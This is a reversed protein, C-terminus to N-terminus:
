RQSSRCREFAPLPRRRRTARERTGLASWESPAPKSILRGAGCRKSRASGSGALGALALPVRDPTTLAHLLRAMGDPTEVHQRPKSGSPLQLGHTPDILEDHRALLYRYLACLPTVMNRATQGSHMAHVDDILRQVASRKLDFISTDGFAPLFHDRAVARYGRITAPAYTDGSRTWADGSEAASIWANWAERITAGSRKPLEIGIAIKNQLNVRDGRAESLTKRWKGYVKRRTAAEKISARYRKGSPGTRTEIGQTKPM